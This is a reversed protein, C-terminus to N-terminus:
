QRTRFYKQLQFFHKLINERADKSTALLDPITNNTRYSLDTIAYCLLELITIGPDHVNYDTWIDSGTKEISGIGTKRLEEYDFADSQPKKSSISLAESM